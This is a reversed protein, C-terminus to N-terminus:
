KCRRCSERSCDPNLCELIKDDPDEMVVMYPCFPCTVLNQLGSALIESSQCRQKLLCLLKEDLINELDDIGVEEQCGSALCEVRGGGVAVVGQASRATCERCFRHGSPCYVLERPLMLTKSFCITCRILMEAMEVDQAREQLKRAMEEM